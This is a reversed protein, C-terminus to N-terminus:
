IDYTILREIRYNYEGPYGLPNCIIRTDQLKYDFM